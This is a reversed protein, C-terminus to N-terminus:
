GAAVGELAALRDAAVAALVVDGKREYLALAERIHPGQENERGALGLVAAMDMLTDAKLEIDVTTEVLGLAETALAIAADSKGTGALHKAEVVRWLVQSYVDDADALERSIGAFAAAEDGRGLAWLVRGLLAAVTSRFYAENMAALADYDRRLEREAAEVDGALLEVRSTHDSLSAALASPGLDAVTERSRASLGRADDFRGAMANLQALVALV